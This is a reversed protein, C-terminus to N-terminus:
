VEFPVCVSVFVSDSLIYVQVKSFFYSSPNCAFGVNVFM